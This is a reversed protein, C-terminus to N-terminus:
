IKKAFRFSYNTLPDHHIVDSRIQLIHQIFTWVIFDIINSDSPDHFRQAFWQTADILFIDSADYLLETDLLVNYSFRGSTKPLVLDQVITREKQSYM